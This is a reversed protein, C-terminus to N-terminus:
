IPFRSRRTQWDSGGYEATHTPFDASASMNAVQATASIFRYLDVSSSRSSPQALCLSFWPLCVHLPRPSQSGELISYSSTSKRKVVSLWCFWLFPFYLIDKKKRSMLCGLVVIGLSLLRSGRVIAVRSPKLALAWPSSHSQLSLM